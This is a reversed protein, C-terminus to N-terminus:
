SPRSRSSGAQFVVRQRRPGSYRAYRCNDPIEPRYIPFRASPCSPRLLGALQSEDYLLKGPRFADSVPRPKELGPYILVDYRDTPIMAAVPVSGSLSPIGPSSRTPPFPRRKSHSMRRRTRGYDEFHRHDATPVRGERLRQRKRVDGAFHVHYMPAILQPRLLYQLSLRGPVVFDLQM